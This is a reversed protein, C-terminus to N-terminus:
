LHLIDESLGTSYRVSGPATGCLVRHQVRHQVTPGQAWRADSLVAEKAIADRLGTTENGLCFITWNLSLQDM